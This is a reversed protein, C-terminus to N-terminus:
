VFPTLMERGNMWAANFGALSSRAADIERVAKM